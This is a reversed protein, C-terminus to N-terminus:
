YNSTLQQIICISRRCFDPSRQGAQNSMSPLQHSFYAVARCQSHAPNSDLIQGRNACEIQENVSRSTFIDSDSIAHVNCQLWAFM